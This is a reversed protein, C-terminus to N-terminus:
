NSYAILEYKQSLYKLNDYVVDTSILPIDAYYNLLDNMIKETIKLSIKDRM